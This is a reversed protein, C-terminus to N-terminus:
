YFYPNSYLLTLHGLEDFFLVCPAHQHANAFTDRVNKESEGVFVDLLEPGKVSIFYMGCETAVARAVLTKGTGPPYHCPPM